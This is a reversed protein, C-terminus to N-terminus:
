PEEEQAENARGFGEVADLGFAAAQQVFYIIKDRRDAPLSLLQRILTRDDPSPETSAPEDQAMLDAPKIKLAEALACVRAYDPKKIVGNEMKWIETNRCKIKRALEIQKLKRQGRWYQLKKASFKMM